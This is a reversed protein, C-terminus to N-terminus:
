PKVSLRLWVPGRLTKLAYWTSAAAGAALVIEIVAITFSPAGWVTLYLALVLFGNAATAINRLQMTEELHRQCSNAGSKIFFQRFKSTFLSKEGNVDVFGGAHHEALPAHRFLEHSFKM